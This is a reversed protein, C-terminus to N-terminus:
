YTANGTVGTPPPHLSELETTVGENEFFNNNTTAGFVEGSGDHIPDSSKAISPAHSSSFM